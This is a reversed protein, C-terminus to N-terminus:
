RTRCKYKREFSADSSFFLIVAEFFSIISPIGTWCFVLYLIGSFIKGLYFKHVGFTGMLFALLAAIIRNKYPLQQEPENSAPYSRTDIQEQYQPQSPAYQDKSHQQSPSDSYVPAFREGCYECEAAGEDLPAGCQPCTKPKM